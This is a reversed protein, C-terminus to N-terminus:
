TLFEITYYTKDTDTNDIDGSDITSIPRQALNDALLLRTACGGVGRRCRKNEPADRDKIVIKFGGSASQVLRYPSSSFGASGTVPAQSAPSTKLTGIYDVLERQDPAQRTLADELWEVQQGTLVGRFLARDDDPLKRDFERLARAFTEIDPDDRHGRIYDFVEAFSLSLLESKRTFLWIMAKKFDEQSAPLGVPDFHRELADRHRGALHTYLTNARNQAGTLSVWQYAPDFGVSYGLQGLRGAEEPWGSKFLAADVAETSKALGLAYLQGVITDLFRHTLSPNDKMGLEITIATDGVLLRSEQLQIHPNLQWHLPRGASLDLPRAKQFQQRYHEPELDSFIKVFQEVDNRYRD